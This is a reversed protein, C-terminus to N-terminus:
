VVYPGSMIEPGNGGAQWPINIFAFARCKSDRAEYIPTAYVAREGIMEFGILHFSQLDAIIDAVGALQKRYRRSQLQKVGSDHLEGTVRPRKDRLAGFVAVYDVAAIRKLESASLGWRGDDAKATLTMAKRLGIVNTKTVEGAAIADLHAQFAKSM